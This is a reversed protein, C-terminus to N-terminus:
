KIAILTAKWDLITNWSENFRRAQAEPHLLTMEIPVIPDVNVKFDSNINYHELKQIARWEKNFYLFAEAVIFRRHSSDQFARNSRANPCFVSLIGEPKLVRYCEDIFCCFLDKDEEDPVFKYEGIPSIYCDPIHEIFHSTHIEDVSSDEWEKWPFKLLNMVIDPNVKSSYDVGIFGEKKNLGCGLDLKIEM